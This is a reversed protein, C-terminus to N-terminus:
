FLYGVQFLTTHPMGVKGLDNGKKETDTKLTQYQTTAEVAAGANTTFTSSSSLAMQWGLDFGFILGTRGGWRWGLTPTLFITKVDLGVTTTQGSISDSASAGMTQQGISAGLFFSGGFPFVRARLDIANFKVAVTGFTLTPLFGYTGAFGLYDTFRGELGLRLPQPLGLAATPGLSVPGLLGGTKADAEAKASAGQEKAGEADTKVEQTKPASETASKAADAAGKAKDLVSEEASAFSPSFLVSISLIASLSGVLQTHTM